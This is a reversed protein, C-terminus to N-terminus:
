PSSSSPKARPARRTGIADIAAVVDLGSVVKGFLSYLPPLRAGPGPHHLVPQREHEPRREGDGAVSSTAAPSPARRRVQLGTRGDRGPRTAARSSSGPSSAISSSGDFFHDRALFVFNNVTQPRARTSRSGMTGKSTVMTATYRRAPDVCMPPPGDFRVTKPRLRGAPPVRRPM